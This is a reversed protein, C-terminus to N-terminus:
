RARAEGGTGTGSDVTVATGDKPNKFKSIEANVMEMDPIDFPTSCPVITPGHWKNGKPNKLLQAGLTAAKRLRTLISPNENRATPSSLYFTAMVQISPIWVLYEPGYMKRTNVGKSGEIIAQFLDSKHDYSVLPKEGSVDLAKTRGACVLVDVKDGLDELQDKGRILAYRGIGIKGEKVVDSSGGCLQLRPLFGTSSAVEVLAGESADAEVPILDNEYFTNSDM